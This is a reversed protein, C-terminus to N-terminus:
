EYYRRGIPNAKIVAYIESATYGAEIMAQLVAWSAESREGKEPPHLILERITRSVRLKSVPIAPVETIEISVRGASPTQRGHPLGKFMDLSYKMEGIEARVTFPTGKRHMTGPIRLLQTLDWGTTDCGKDEYAYAIRKNLAEYEPPKLESDLLWYAQWHSPSSEILISPVPEGYRGLEEPQCTDLDAWVAHGDLAFAKQRRPQSLLHPCFYCDLHRHERVWSEVADVNPWRIFVQKLRKHGKNSPIHALCLFGERSGFLLDLMQVFESMKGGEIRKETM